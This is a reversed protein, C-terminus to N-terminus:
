RERPLWFRRPEGRRWRQVTWAVEVLLAGVLGILLAQRMLATNSTDLLFLAQTFPLLFILVYAGASCALLLIKWPEYPRAVVALVWTAVVILTTLAATAAQTQTAEAANTGPRSLLYTTFTALGVIVGSPLALAM